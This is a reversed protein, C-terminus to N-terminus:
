VQPRLLVRMQRDLEERYEEETCGHMAEFVIPNYHQIIADRFAHRTRTSTDFLLTIYAGLQESIHSSHLDVGGEMESIGQVIRIFEQAVM